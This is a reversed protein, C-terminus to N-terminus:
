KIMLTFVVLYICIAYTCYINCLYYIFCITKVYFWKNIASSQSKFLKSTKLYM